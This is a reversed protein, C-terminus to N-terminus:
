YFRKRIMKPVLRAVEFLGKLFYWPNIMVMFLNRWFDYVFFVISFRLLGFPSENKIIMLYRNRMCLYQSVRDKNRSRGAIHLCEAEPTYLIKWGKKQLRWCVDVDEFFYFFDKDFYEEGQRISELAERRYLAAAQSVGFVFKRHNFKPSDIKGSGIDSFRWLWSFHIGASYITKKDNLLIKAGAAGINYNSEIAQYIKKLFNNLLIVDHDLFLIFEGKAKRIGQNRAYCAGFNERNEILTIDIYRNKILSKPTDQSANDIVIIEYERFGQKFISDLCSEIYHQANYTVLVISITKM